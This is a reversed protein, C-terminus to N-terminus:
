SCELADELTELNELMLSTYDDGASEQEPTLGEITHLVATQVGAEGALTEAVQPSVLEETFITTIGEDEVLRKLEALREPSPESEPSVGSIAVQTLGYADALYGFAAHNTLIVTRECDSLGQSFREDLDELESRFTAANERFTSASNPAAEALADAVEDVVEAFLAPALWVHPDVSLGEEAEEGIPAITQVGDLLDVTSGEAGSIADEVAPQFGGGLYLVVEASQLDEVNQPTLELDHPEVGPPTINTAQVLQGGVQRTAEEIPYFATVVSLTGEDSAGGGNSYCAVLLVM